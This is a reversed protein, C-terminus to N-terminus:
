YGSEFVNVFISMTLHMNTVSSTPPHSDSSFTPLDYNIQINFLFKNESLLIDNSCTAYSREYIIAQKTIEPDLLLSFSTKARRPVCRLSRKRV